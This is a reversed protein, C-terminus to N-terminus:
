QSTPEDDEDEADAALPPAFFGLVDVVIGLLMLAAASRVLSFLYFVGAVVMLTLGITSM